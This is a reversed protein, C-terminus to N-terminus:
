LMAGSGNRGKLRKKGGDHKPEAWGGEGGSVSPDSCSTIDRSPASSTSPTITQRNEALGGSGSQQPQQQYFEEEENTM